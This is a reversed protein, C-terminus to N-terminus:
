NKKQDSGRLLRNQRINILAFQGSPTVQLKASKDSSKESKLEGETHADKILKSATPRSFSPADQSLTENTQKPPLSKRIM